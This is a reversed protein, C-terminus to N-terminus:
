QSKERRSNGDWLRRLTSLSLVSGHSNVKSRSQFSSAAFTLTKRMACVISGSIAIICNTEPMKKARVFPVELNALFAGWKDFHPEQPTPSPKKLIGGGKPASGGAPTKQKRRMTNIVQADGQGRLLAAADKGANAGPVRRDIPYRRRPQAIITACNAM